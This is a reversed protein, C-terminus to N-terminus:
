HNEHFTEVHHTDTSEKFIGSSFLSRYCILVYMVYKNLYEHHFFKSVHMKVKPSWQLWIWTRQIFVFYSQLIDFYGVLDLFNSCLCQVCNAMFYKSSPLGCSPLSGAVFLGSFLFQGYNNSSKKLHLLAPRFCLYSFLHRTRLNWSISFWNKATPQPRPQVTSYFPRCQLYKCNKITDLKWQLKM